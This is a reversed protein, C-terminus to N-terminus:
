FNENERNQMINWLLRDGGLITETELLFAADIAKEGSVSSKM